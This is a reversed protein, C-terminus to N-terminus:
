PKQKSYFSFCIRYSRRLLPYMFLCLTNCKGHEGYIRVNKTRGKNGMQTGSRAYRLREAGTGNEQAAAGLGGEEKEPVAKQQPISASGGKLYEQFLTPVECVLQSSAGAWGLELIGFPLLSNQTRAIRGPDGIIKLEQPFCLM